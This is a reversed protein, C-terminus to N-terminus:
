IGTIIYKLMADRDPVDPVGPVDSISCDHKIDRMEMLVSFLNWSGINPCPKSLM